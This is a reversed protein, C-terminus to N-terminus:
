ATWRRDVVGIRRGSVRLKKIEIRGHQADTVPQMEDDVVHAAFNAGRGFTFVAM